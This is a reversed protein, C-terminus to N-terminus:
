PRFNSGRKHCSGQSHLADLGELIRRLHGVAVDETFTETAQLWASMTGGATYREELIYLRWGSREVRELQLRFATVHDVSLEEAQSISL